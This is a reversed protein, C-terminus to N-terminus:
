EAINVKILKDNTKRPDTQNTQASAYGGTTGRTQRESIQTKGEFNSERKAMTPTAGVHHQSILSKMEAGKKQPSNKFVTQGGTYKVSELNM